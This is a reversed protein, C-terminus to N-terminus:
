KKEQVEKILSQLAGESAAGPVFFAKNGHSFKGNPTYAVVFAPTGMLRLSEALKMNNKLIDQVAKSKMDAKLKTTNIGVSSAAQLVISSSLRQKKSLLADHLAQYKGQMNAAIAAKAAFNSGKGFIPFDKYVVRLNSDASILKSIVPAMRKCHVCQYDFFEVLTVNGNQNGTVPSQHDFLNDGNADIAGAAQQQMDKQQKQQLSKSVELLIEPNKVLYSKVISQIDKQQQSSFSSQAANAGGTMLGLGLLGVMITRKLNM